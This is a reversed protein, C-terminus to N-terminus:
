KVDSLDSGYSHKVDRLKLNLNRRYTIEWTLAEFITAWLGAPSFM